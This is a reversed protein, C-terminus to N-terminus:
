ADLGIQKFAEIAYDPLKLMKGQNSLKELIKKDGGSDIAEKSLDMAIWYGHHKEYGTCEARNKEISEQSHKPLRAAIRALKLAYVFKSHIEFLTKVAPHDFNVHKSKSNM